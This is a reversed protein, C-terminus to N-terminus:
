KKLFGSAIPVDLQNDTEWTGVSGMKPGVRFFYFIFKVKRSVRDLPAKKEESFQIKFSIFLFFDSYYFQSKSM